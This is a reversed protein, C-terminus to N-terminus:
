CGSTDPRPKAGVPAPPKDNNAPASPLHPYRKVERVLFPFYQHGVWEQTGTRRLKAEVKCVGLSPFRPLSFIAHFRFFTDAEPFETSTAAGAVLETGDPALSSIQGDYKAVPPDSEDRIWAAVIHVSNGRGPQTGTDSVAPPGDADFLSVDIAEIVNFVSILNTRRDAVADAACMVYAPKPM